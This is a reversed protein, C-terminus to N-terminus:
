LSELWALINPKKWSPRAKGALLPKVKELVKRKMELNIEAYRNTTELNVHGLWARITNIEVGAELLHM